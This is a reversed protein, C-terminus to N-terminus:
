AHRASEGYIQHLLPAGLTQGAAIAPMTIDLNRNSLHLLVVGNPKLLRLYGQIAEATLLHTPM